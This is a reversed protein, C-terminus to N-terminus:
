HVIGAVGEANNLRRELNTVVGELYEIRKMVKNDFGIQKEWWERQTKGYEALVEAQKLQTQLLLMDATSVEGKSLKLKELLSVIEEETQM